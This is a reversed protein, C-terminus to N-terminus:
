LIGPIGTAGGFRLDRWVGMCDTQEPFIHGWFFMNCITTDFDLWWLLEVRDARSRNNLPRGLRSKGMTTQFARPSFLLSGSPCMHLDDPQSHCEAMLAYLIFTRTMMVYGTRIWDMSIKLWSFSGRRQIHNRAKADGKIKDVRLHFLSLVCTWRKVIMCPALWADHTCGTQKCALSPVFNSNESLGEVAAKVVQWFSPIEKNGLTASAFECWISRMWSQGAPKALPRNLWLLQWLWTPRM